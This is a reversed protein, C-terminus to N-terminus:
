GLMEIFAELRTRQQGISGLTCDGELVLLPMGARRFAERIAPMRELYPDCFKAVHGIAGRASRQQAATVMEEAIAGPSHPEFTRACRPRALLSAAIEAWIDGGASTQIPQFLREGTCCNEGVLRAGCSEIFRLAAPDPLVNGFLYIPVAAKSSKEGEDKVTEALFNAASLGAARNITAQLSAAGGPLDGNWQREALQTILEAVDNYSSVATRVAAVTIERGAWGGLIGALNLLEERFYARGREGDHVPLDVLAIRQEPRIRRWADALRRMADCSNMLVVGAPEPTEEALVLDLVRKVHPCLNDHLWEGAKEPCNTLPLIRYPQFGAAEILPLPTYACTFAITPTNMRM